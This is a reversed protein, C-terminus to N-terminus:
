FRYKSRKKGRVPFYVNCLIVRLGELICDILIYRGELDCIAKKVELDVSANILILVGKSHNTGHSYICQGNWESTWKDEVERTSYTEQLFVIDAGKERCWAFIRQRKVKERLGKVNLSIHNCKLDRLNQTM